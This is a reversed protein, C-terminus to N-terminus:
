EMCGWDPVIQESITNMADIVDPYMWEALRVYQETSEIRYHGLYDKLIPLASYIPMGDALMKNLARVAFTHRFDHVRPGYEKGNHPIEAKDIFKRFWNYVLGPTLSDGNDKAFIYRSGTSIHGGIYDRMIESLSEDMVVLRDKNNKSELIRLTRESFNIDSHKLGTAESVRVGCGLLVRFLISPISPNLSVVSTENFKLSDIVAFFRKLEDDSYIHPSFKSKTKIKCHEPIFVSHGLNGLYNAFGMFIMRRNHQSKQKEGERSSLWRESMDQPLLTESLDYALSFRSLNGLVKLDTAAKQGMSRKYTIYDVISAAMDGVLPMELREDIIFDTLERYEPVSLACGGLRPTDIKAYLTTTQVNKHGLADAVSKITEGQALMKSALSFRLAHPGKKRSGIDIGAKDLAFFIIDNITVVGIPDYPSFHKLFIYESDSMPRANLMYDAIAEGVDPLLELCLANGTKQQILEIKDNEWDISSFKLSAIDSRRIGTRAAILAIAYARKQKPTDTGIARLLKTVEDQTYYSPIRSDPHYPVNIVSKSLDAHLVNREYLFYLLAKMIRVFEHRQSLSRGSLTKCYDVVIRMDIDVARKLGLKSLGEAICSVAYHHKVVSAHSLGRLTCFELYEDFEPYIIIPERKRKGKPTEFPIGALYNNLHRIVVNCQRRNKECNRAARMVPLVQAGVEPTYTEIDHEDMFKLLHRYLVRFSELTTDSYGAERMKNISEVVLYEPKM